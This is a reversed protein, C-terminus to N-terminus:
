GYGVDERFGCFSCEGEKGEGTSEWRIAAYRRRSRFVEEKMIIVGKTVGLVLIGVYIKGLVNLM